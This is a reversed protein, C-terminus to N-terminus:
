CTADISKSQERMRLLNARELYRSYYKDYYSHMALFSEVLCTFLLVTELSSTRSRALKTISEISMLLMFITLKVAFMQNMMLFREFRYLYSKRFECGCAFLDVPWCSWGAVSRNVQPRECLDSM